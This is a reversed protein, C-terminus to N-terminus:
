LVSTNKECLGNENSKIQLALDNKENEIKMYKCHTVLKHNTMIVISPSYFPSLILQLAISFDFLVFTYKTKTERCPVTASHSKNILVWHKPACAAIVIRTIIIIVAYAKM